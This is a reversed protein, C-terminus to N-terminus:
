TEAEPGANKALFELKLTKPTGESSIKLFMM